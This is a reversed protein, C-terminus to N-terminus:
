NSIIYSERLNKLKGMTGSADTGGYFTAHASYWTSSVRPAHAHAPTALTLHFCLAFYISTFYLSKMVQKTALKYSAMAEINDIQLASLPKFNECFHLAIYLADTCTCTHQTRLVSQIFQLYFTPRRYYLQFAPHCPLILLTTM